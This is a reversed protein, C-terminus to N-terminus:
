LRKRGGEQRRQNDEATAILEALTSGLANAIREAVDLSPNREGREVLGIYTPHVAALEALQEQTLQANSRRSRVAKGFAASLRLDSM